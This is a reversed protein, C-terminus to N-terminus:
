EVDLRVTLAPDDVDVILGSALPFQLSAGVRAADRPNRHAPCAGASAPDPPALFADRLAAAVTEADDGARTTVTFACRGLASVAEVWVSGGAAGGRPVSFSLRPAVGVNLPPVGLHELALTVGAGGTVAPVLQSGEAGPATLVLRPRPAPPDEGGGAEVGVVAARVGAELCGEDATVADALDALVDAPDGGATVTAEVACLAESAAGPHALTPTVVIASSTGAKASAAAGRASASGPVVALAASSPGEVSAQPAAAVRATTEGCTVEVSAVECEGADVGGACQGDYCAWALPRALYFGEKDAVLAGDADTRLTAGDADVEGGGCVEGAADSLQLECSADPALASAAVPLYAKPLHLPPGPPDGGDIWFNCCEEEYFPKGFAKGGGAVGTPRTWVGRGHTAAFIQEGEFDIAFDYVAVNPLGKGLYTWGATSAGAFRAYVCNDTGLWVRYPPDPEIALRNAPRTAVVGSSDIADDWPTWSQGADDSRYVSHSGFGEFAVYIEQAIAPHIALSTVPRDPLATGDVRTWTPVPSAVDHTIFIRGDYFGIVMTQAATPAIAMASIANGGAIEPFILSPDPEYAMEGPSLPSWTSGDDDSTYLQANGYYLPHQGFWASPGELMPPYWMVFKWIAIGNYITPWDYDPCGLPGLTCRRPENGFYVDYVKLEDDHDMITSAADGHVAHEWIVSGAYVNTGNDQTGGILKDSFPSTSISQFQTVVLYDQLSDDWIHEGDGVFFGGDNVDYVRVGTPSTADEWVWVDHHDPHLSSNGVTEWIKGGDFSRYLQTGGYWLINPDGPHITLAHTYSTYSSLPSSYSGQSVSKAAKTMTWTSGGDASRFVGPSCFGPTNWNASHHPHPCGPADELVAYLVAPDAPTPRHIALEPWGGDAVYSAPIGANIAQWGQGADPSRWLGRQAFGAYVTDPDQPDIELDTAVRGDVELVLDWSEGADTSKYVGYEAAPETTLTAHAANATKGASLAVYLTKGDDDPSSPDLVLAAISGYRFLDAGLQTWQYDGLAPSWRGRLVGAGYQTDRRWSNEGLGVWVTACREPDCSDLALAGTALFEAHDTMPTWLHFPVGGEEGRELHWAGGGATAVWVDNAPAMPNAAVSNIRGSVAIEGPWAQGNNIKRPGISQWSPGGPVIPEAGCVDPPPPQPDGDGGGGPGALAPGALAGTLLIPLALTRFRAQRIRDHRSRSRM